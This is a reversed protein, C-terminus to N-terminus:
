IAAAAAFCINGNMSNQISNKAENKTEPWSKKITTSKQRNQNHTSFDIHLCVNKKTSRQNEFSLKWNDNERQTLRVISSLNSRISIVSAFWIINALHLHLFFFKYFNVQPQNWWQVEHKFTHSNKFAASSSHQIFSYEWKM